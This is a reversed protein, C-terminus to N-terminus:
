SAIKLEDAPENMEALKALLAPSLTYIPPYQANLQYTIVRQVHHSLSLVRQDQINERKRTTSM